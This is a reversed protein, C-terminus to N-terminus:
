RDFNSTKNIIKDYLYKVDKDLKDIQNEVVEIHEIAKEVNRKEYFAYALYIFALTNINKSDIGKKLNICNKLMAIGEDIRESDVLVCGRVIKYVLYEGYKDYIQKSYDDASEYNDNNYFLSIYALNYMIMYRHYEESPDLNNLLEINIRKAKKIKLEKIYIYALFIKVKKTDSFAEATKELIEKAEPYKREEILYLAHSINGSILTKQIQKQDYSFCKILEFGDGPMSLIAFFINSHSFVKLIMSLHYFVEVRMNIPPSSKLNKLILYAALAFCVNFFIGGFTYVFFRIKVNKNVFSDPFCVGRGIGNRVEILAALFRFKFILKQGRGIQIKWTNIKSLKGFVM